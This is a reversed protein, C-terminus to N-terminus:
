GLSSVCIKPTELAGAYVSRKSSGSSEMASKSSDSMPNTTALYKDYVSPPRSDPIVENQKSPKTLVPKITPLNNSNPNYLSRFAAPGHHSNGPSM